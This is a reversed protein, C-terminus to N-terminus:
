EEEKYNYVITTKVNDSYVNAPVWTWYGGRGDKGIRRKIRWYLKAMTLGYATYVYVNPDINNVGVSNHNEACAEPSELWDRRWRKQNAKPRAAHNHQGGTM